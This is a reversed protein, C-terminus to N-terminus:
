LHSHNDHEEDPGLRRHTSVYFSSVISSDLLVVFFVFLFGLLKEEKTSASM